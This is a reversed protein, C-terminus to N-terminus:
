IAKQEELQQKHYLEAYLKGNKLLSKHNGEEIINGKDLVIIHDAKKVTSIRHSTLITTKDKMVEKLNNLIKEETETDVASLCDDFILISPNHLIARAISVRQKQGGSLTIGREGLHTNFKEPFDNISSYIVADKAANKVADMDVKASTDGFAINQAITDSFLFTEQPVYGIDRRLDNLNLKKINEGDIHVEGDSTDFLRCILDAITSKGSGTKGIVALTEGPKVKFSVNNLARTGSDPYDFSVNRFEISGNVPTPQYNQNQIEPETHLFENIRKQSAAARQTLSTVWGLATVPWTLMNVYIVFAAIDGITLNKDIVELGGIYITLITSLGILLMMLPHFFANIRVLGLSLEKYKESERDFDDAVRKERVFSKLIRIGSFTEQSRTSLNSLQRQVQESKINIKQSIYYILVALVPLPTLVYLTLKANISLMISIVLIFLVFLNITYMIAPGLYMRVKNVDESIRNMIDGTNNKKYFAMSLEQYHNYIENKLDYEILRSMIIITQRTLFSFLGKFFFMVIVVLAFFVLSAELDMGKSFYGLIEQTFETVPSKKAVAGELEATKDLHRRVADFAEKIVQAPFIAFVNSITIFLIGFILRFKYKVLYKNLHKLSKM